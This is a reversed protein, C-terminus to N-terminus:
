KGGAAPSRNIETTVGLIQAEEKKPTEPKSKKKPPEDVIDSPKVGDIKLLEKRILEKGWPDKKIEALEKESIDGGKPSITIGGVLQAQSIKTTYKM